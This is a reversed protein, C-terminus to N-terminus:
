HATSCPGELGRWVGVPSGEEEKRKEEERKTGKRLDIFRREATAKFESEAFAIREKRSPM